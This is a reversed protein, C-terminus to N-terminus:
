GSSKERHHADANRIDCQSHDECLGQRWATSALCKKESEGGASEKKRGGFYSDDLEVAGDFAQQSEDATHLAIIERPRHFYYIVTEENISVVIAVCRATAGVVFYEIFKAQRGQSM